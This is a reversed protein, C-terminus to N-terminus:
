KRAALFMWLALIGSIVLGMVSLSIPVIKGDVVIIWQNVLRALHLLAVLLFILGAVILPIRQNM